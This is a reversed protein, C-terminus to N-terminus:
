APITNQSLYRNKNILPNAYMHDFIDTLHAPVKERRNLFKRTEDGFSSFPIDKVIQYALENSPWIRYNNIIQKDIDAVLGQKSDIQTIQTGFAIHVRGKYGFLGKRMSFFDELPWKKYTGNIIKSHIERAKWVDLPDYEYSISVPIIHMGRLVDELVRGQMKRTLGLMRIVKEETFDNGDKARGEAQALWVSGYNSLYNSIFRSQHKLTGFLVNEKGRKIIFIKNLKMLDKVASLNLLNMGTAISTTKYGHIYLVYNMLAPDMVIDRHNSIFLHNKDKSVNELGSYTLGGTTNKILGELPDMLCEQFENVTKARRFSNMKDKIETSGWDSKTSKLAIKFLFNFFFNNFLREVVEPVEDDGYPSIDEFENLKQEQM